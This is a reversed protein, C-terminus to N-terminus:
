DPASGTRKSSNNIRVAGEGETRAPRALRQISQGNRLRPAHAEFGRSWGRGRPFLPFNTCSILFNSSCHLLLYGFVLVPAARLAFHRQFARWHQPKLSNMMFDAVLLARYTTVFIDVFRVIM